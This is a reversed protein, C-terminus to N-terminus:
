GGFGSAGESVDGYGAGSVGRPPASKSDLRSIAEVASRRRGEWYRAQLRPGLHQRAHKQQPRRQVLPNGEPQAVGLPEPLKAIGVAIKRAEDKTM